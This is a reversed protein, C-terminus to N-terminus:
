AGVQAREEHRSVTPVCSRLLARMSRCSLAAIHPQNGVSSERYRWLYSCRASHRMAEAGGTVGVAVRSGAPFENRLPEIGKSRLAAGCSSRCGGRGLSTTSSGTALRSPLLQLSRFWCPNRAALNRQTASGTVLRLLDRHLIRGVIEVCAFGRRVQPERRVRKALPPARRGRVRMRAARSRPGSDGRRVRRTPPRASPPTRHLTSVCRRPFRGARLQLARVRHLAHPARLVPRGSLSRRLILRQRWASGSKSRSQRM